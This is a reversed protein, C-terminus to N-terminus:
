YLCIVSWSDNEGFRVTKCCTGGSRYMAIIKVLCNLSATIQKLTKSYRQDTAMELYFHPSEPTGHKAILMATGAIRRTARDELVFLYVGDQREQIRGRFSLVSRQLLALLDTKETPLNVSDLLRALCLIQSADAPIAERLLFPLPAQFDSPRLTQSNPTRLLPSRVAHSRVSRSM